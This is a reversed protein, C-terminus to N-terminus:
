KLDYMKINKQICEITLLPLIFNIKIRITNNIQNYM